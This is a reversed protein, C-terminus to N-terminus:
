DGVIECETDLFFVFREDGEEVDELEWAAEKRLGPFQNFNVYALNAEYRNVSGVNAEVVFPFKYKKLSEFDGNNLIRIKKLTM